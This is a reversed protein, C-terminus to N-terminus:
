GPDSPVQIRFEENQGGFQRYSYSEIVATVGLFFSTNDTLNTFNIFEIIGRALAPILIQFVVLM